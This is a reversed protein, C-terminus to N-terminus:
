ARVTALLLAVQPFAQAPPVYAASFLGASERKVEVVSGTSSWLEIRADAPADPASIRLRVRGTEGLVARPPEAQLAAAFALLLIAGM